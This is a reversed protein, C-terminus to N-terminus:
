FTLVICMRYLYEIMTLYAQKGQVLRDKTLGPGLTVVARYNKPLRLDTGRTHVEDLYILCEDMRQEYTSSYLPARVGDRSYVWLENESNFYVAAQVEETTLSLWREAVQDNELELVQAGVDIIVRVSPQLDVVAKLLPEIDLGGSESSVRHFRNQPKLIHKLQLSSIHSQEPIDQQIISLPLMYRSDKTGSFGTTLHKKKKAINWGSSSIKHPFERIASPFVYDSLYFDITKKNSRFLPFITELFQGSDDLNVGSLTQLAEPLTSIGWTWGSYEDEPHDSALLKEFALQLQDTSLGAAYYSLCTLIITADPHSFESRSAPQDKARFPVALMTRSLDLGYNVRYRKESLAFMLIGGAILGRLLLLGARSHETKWVHKDLLEMDKQTNQPKTIFRCMAKRIEGSYFQFSLQGVGEDCVRKGVENLLDHGAAPLLVRLSRVSKGDDWKSVELGGPHKNLVSEMSKWTMTLLDEIIAWRTPSFDIHRQSGVTYVLELDVGLVEDSEDLIDRSVKDLDEQMNILSKGLIGRGSLVHDLGMLEFSLLHEPQVLLIGGSSKCSEFALRLYSAANKDLGPSRSLPLFYIRRRLAGGLRQVLIHFMQNLLPKLVVVRVLKKTDALAAAVIPVIVSSKGDGMNLQMISNQRSSPQIMELATRAQSERILIDNEIEFVLWEPYDKPNWGQHGINKLESVLESDDTLNSLRNARQVATISLALQHLASIWQQSVPITNRRTYVALLTLIPIRPSLFCASVIRNTPATNTPGELSQHIMTLVRELHASSTRRYHELHQIVDRLPIGLEMLSSTRPQLSELSGTLDDRYQKGFNGPRHRYLRTCLKQVSTVDVDNSPKFTFWQSTDCFPYEPVSPAEGKFIGSRTLHTTYIMRTKRPKEFAYPKIEDPRAAPRNQLIASLSDVYVKFRRNRYWSCFLGNVCGLAGDIKIYDEYGEGISLPVREAPWQNMIEGVFKEFQNHIKTQLYEKRRQAFDDSGETPFPYIDHTDSLQNYRLCYPRLKELLKDRTPEYGDSLEFISYNPVVQNHLEPITAFALLTYIVPVNAQESYSLTSLFFMLQYKHEEARSRSVMSQLTLWYEPLFDKPEDLWVLNYGLMSIDEIEPNWRRIPKGWSQILQLLEHTSPGLNESWSEVLRAIKTVSTGRSVKRFERSDYQLDDTVKFDEAGFGETRFVATRIAQRELLYNDNLPFNAEKVPWNGEHHFMKQSKISQYFDSILAWFHPHQSLTPLKIWDIEQMLRAYRPYFSHAPCLKAIQELISIDDACLEYFSNTSAEKLIFLAEETGTRRTLSDPIHHSTVAHLLCKFLKTTLGGKDKIRNLLLDIEYTHFRIRNERNKKIEVVVHQGSLKYEVEGHPVIVLRKKTRPSRLVLKNVLGSFIGISQDEDVVMGPFEKSQIAQNNEHLNFHLNMWSLSIDLENRIDGVITHIYTEKELPQFISLVYAATPSRIDVLSTGNKKLAKGGAEQVMSWNNPNPIWPDSLPRWEIIETNLDQWHVYGHIFASPFDGLLATHPILEWVQSDRVALIILNNEPKQLRFHLQSLNTHAKSVSRAFTDCVQLGHVKQRTEFCM